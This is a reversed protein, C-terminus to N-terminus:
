AVEWQRLEYADIAMEGRATLAAEQEFQFQEAELWALEALGDNIFQRLAAADHFVVHNGAADGMHVEPRRSNERAVDVDDASDITFTIPTPRPPSQTPM